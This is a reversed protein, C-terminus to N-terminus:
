YPRKHEYPCFSYLTCQGCAPHLAKCITRGHSILYHSLMTWEKKPFLSMLDQEIKEPSDHRTFGLRNSLRIIHTDVAIGETIGLGNGLVVNATKRGVGPLLTMTKITRPLTGKFKELLMACCGVIHKSKMHYLGVSRIDNGVEKISAVAFADITPYKKFLTRTVMNVRTDTCQASLITAILLQWANRYHLGCRADPYTKKLISLVKKARITIDM